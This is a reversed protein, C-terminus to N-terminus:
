STREIKIKSANKNKCNMNNYVIDRNVTNRTFKVNTAADPTSAVGNANIDDDNTTSRTADDGNTAKIEPPLLCIQTSKDAGRTIMSALADNSGSLSGEGNINEQVHKEFESKNNGHKLGKCVFPVVTNDAAEIRASGDEKIAELEVDV